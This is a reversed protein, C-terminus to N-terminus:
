PDARRNAEPAGLYGRSLTPGLVGPQGIGTATVDAGEADFLRLQMEPIPRGATTLRKAPPDEPRTASVAGTENSGYFQLVAAGTQEEFARARGEPVAEGGTFLCRLCPPPVREFGGSELMLIFQTSVAALM